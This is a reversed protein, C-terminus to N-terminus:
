VIRVEPKDKEKTEVESESTSPPEDSVRTFMSINEDTPSTLGELSVSSTLVFDSENSNTELAEQKALQDLEEQLLNNSEQSTFGNAPSSSQSSMVPTVAFHSEVPSQLQKDADEKVEEKPPPQKESTFRFNENSISTPESVQENSVKQM